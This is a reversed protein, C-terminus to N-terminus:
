VIRGELDSKTPLDQQYAPKKYIAKLDLSVGVVNNKLLGRMM